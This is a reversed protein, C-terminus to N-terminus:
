WLLALPSLHAVYFDITDGSGFTQLERVSYNDAKHYVQLHKRAIEQATSPLIATANASFLYYFDSHYFSIYNKTKM